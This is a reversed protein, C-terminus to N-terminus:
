NKMRTINPAKAIENVINIENVVKEEGDKEEKVILSLDSGLWLQMTTFQYYWSDSRSQSTHPLYIRESRADCVNQYNFSGNNGKLYVNRNVGQAVRGEYTININIHNTNKYVAITDYQNINHTYPVSLHKYGHYLDNQKDRIKNSEMPKLSVRYTDLYEIGSFEYFQSQNLSAVLTYDGVEQVSLVPIFETRALDAQSYSFKNVLKENSDYLYLDLRDAIKEYQYKKMVSELYVHVLVPCDELSDKICGGLLLSFACLISIYKVKM